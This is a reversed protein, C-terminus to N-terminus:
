KETGFKLPLSHAAFKTILYSNIIANERQQAYKANPYKPSVSTTLLKRAIAVLLVQWYSGTGVTIVGLVSNMVLCICFNLLECTHIIALYVYWGLSAGVAILPSHPVASHVHQVVESLDSTDAGCSLRPTQMPLNLIPIHSSVTHHM